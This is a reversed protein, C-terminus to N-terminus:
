GLRLLPLIHPHQLNATTKIEALFREAGIVAALEPRLVKVAVKRDHRLDQALYVTAMGGAGLEREIRYRDGLATALRIESSPVCCSVTDPGAGAAGVPSPQPSLDARYFARGSGFRRLSGREGTTGAESGPPTVRLGPGRELSPKGGGPFGGGRIAACPEQEARLAQGKRRGRHDSGAGARHDMGGTHLEPHPADPLAFAVGQRAGALQERSALATGGTVGARRQEALDLPKAELELCVRSGERAREVGVPRVIEGHRVPHAREDHEAAQTRTGHETVLHHAAPALEQREVLPQAGGRQRFRIARWPGGPAM